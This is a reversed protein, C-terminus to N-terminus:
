SFKRPTRIAFRSVVPIDRQEDEDSHKCLRAIQQNSLHCEDLKEELLRQAYRSWCFAAILSLVYCLTMIGLCWSMVKLWWNINDIATRDGSLIQGHLKENYERLATLEQQLPACVNRTNGDAISKAYQQMEVQIREFMRDMFVLPDMSESETPAM